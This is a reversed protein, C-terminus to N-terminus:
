VTNSLHKTPIIESVVVVDLSGVVFTDVDIDLEVDVCVVKNEVVVLVLGGSLM